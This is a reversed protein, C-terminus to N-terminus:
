VYVVPEEIILIKQDVANDVLIIEAPDPQHLNASSVCKQGASSSHDALEERSPFTRNCSICVYDVIIDGAAAAVASHQRRQHQALNDLRAYHKGCQGCQHKKEHTLSHKTLASVSVFKKSCIECIFELIGDHIKMHTRLKYVSSFSKQCHQCQTMVADTPMKLKKKVKGCTKLHRAAISQSSFLKECKSCPHNLRLELSKHTKEHLGLSDARNTSFACNPFSCQYLPSALHVRQHRRLESATSFQAVCDPCVYPKTRTHYRMHVQLEYLSPAAHSCGPEGCKM